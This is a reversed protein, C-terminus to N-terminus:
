RGTSGGSSPSAVNQHARRHVHDAHPYVALAHAPNDPLLTSLTTVSPPIPVSDDDGGYAAFVPCRVLPLVATLDFVFFKPLLRLLEPVAYYACAAEYWPRDAYERQNALISQYDEGAQVRATREDVWAMAEPNGGVAREIRYREQEAPSVGPGSVTVVQNIAEPAMSAAIWSVWGGQSVGLLGVRDLDVGPQQRLVEVAALTDRARDELSQDRWAGPSGGCGPKDHSLAVAGCGVVLPALATWTSDATGELAGDVLVVGPLLAEDDGGWVVARLEGADTTVSTLAQRM